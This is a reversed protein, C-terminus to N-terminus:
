SQEASDILKEVNDNPSAADDIVERSANILSRLLFKEKVIECYEGIRSISPVIEALQLMYSKINTEDFNKESRLQELVMVFDVPKSVTFLDIMARYIAKHNSLYFYDPTPLIEMVTTLCDSDLLVSGLVAQEAEASYPLNLGDVSVVPMNESM